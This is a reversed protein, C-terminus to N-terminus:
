FIYKIAPALVQICDMLAKETVTERVWEANLVTLHRTLRERVLSACFDELTDYQTLRAAVAEIQHELGIKCLFHRKSTLKHQSFWRRLLAVEQEVFCLRLRTDEPYYACVLIGLWVCVHEATRDTYQVGRQARSEYLPLLAHHQMFETHKAGLARFSFLYPRHKSENDDDDADFSAPDLIPATPPIYSLRTHAVVYSPARFLTGHMQINPQPTSIDMWDADAAFFGMLYGRLRICRNQRITSFISEICVSAFIANRACSQVQEESVITSHNPNTEFQAPIRSISSVSMQRHFHVLELQQSLETWEARFTDQNIWLDLLTRGATACLKTYTQKDFGNPASYAVFPIHYKETFEICTM